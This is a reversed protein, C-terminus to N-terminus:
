RFTIHYFVIISGTKNQKYLSLAKQKAAPANKWMGTQLASFEAALKADSPVKQKLKKPALAVVAVSPAATPSPRQVTPAGTVAAAVKPVIHVAPVAAAVAPAKPPLQAAINRLNKVIESKRKRKKPKPPSEASRSVIEGVMHQVTSEVPTATPPTTGLLAEEEAVEENTMEM